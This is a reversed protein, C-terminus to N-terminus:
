KFSMGLDEIAKKIEQVGKEGLGELALIDEEKKKTIATATKIGASVLANLTRTSLNLDEVKTKGIESVDSEVKFETPESL